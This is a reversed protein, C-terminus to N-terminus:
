IGRKSLPTNEIPQLQLDPIVGFTSFGLTNEVDHPRRIITDLWELVLITILGCFIAFSLLALYMSSKNPGSPSKELQPQQLITLVEAAPMQLDAKAKALNALASQYLDETLRQEAELRPSHKTRDFRALDDRLAKAESAHFGVRKEADSKELQKATALFAHTISRTMLLAAEPNPDQYGVSGKGSIEEHYVSVRNLPNGDLALEEATRNVEGSTLVRFKLFEFHSIRDVSRNQSISPNILMVSTSMYTQTHRSIFTAGVAM